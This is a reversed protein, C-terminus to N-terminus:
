TGEGVLWLAFGGSEFGDSLLPTPLVTVVHTQESCNLPEGVCCIQLTVPYDGPESPAIAVLDPCGGALPLYFDVLDPPDFGPASWSCIAACNVADPVSPPPAAGAPVGARGAALLLGLALARGACGRRSLRM